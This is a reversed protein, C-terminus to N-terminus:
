LAINPNAYVRYEWPQLEIVLERHLLLDGGTFLESLNRSDMDLTTEQPEETCNVVTIISQGSQDRRFALVQSHDTLWVLPGGHIGNWLAENYQKLQLLRLYFNTDPEGQQPRDHQGAPLMFMNIGPLTANVTYMASISNASLGKQGAENLDFFNVPYITRGSIRSLEDIHKRIQEAPAATQDISALLQSWDKDIFGQFCGAMTKSTPLSETVLLVPKIEDLAQRLEKWFDEPVLDTHLMVFGDINSSRIWFRMAEIMMSRLSSQSYDLEAVDRMDTHNGQADMAHTITDAVHVYWEPNSLLWSHDWSTHNPEWEILLHMRLDRIGETLKQFDEFTGFEPNVKTFDSVASRNGSPQNNRDFGIPCIQRLVITQVGMKKLDSLHKTFDSFTGQTTYTGIDAVFLDTNREWLPLRPVYADQTKDSGELEERKESSQCALLLIGSLLLFLKVPYYHGSRTIM